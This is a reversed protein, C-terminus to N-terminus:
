PAARSGHDHGTELAIAWSQGRDIFSRRLQTRPRPPPYLAARSLTGGGRDAHAARRGPRRHHSRAQHRRRHARDRGSPQAALGARGPGPRAASPRSRRWGTLWMSTPRSRRPMARGVAPRGRGHRGASARAVGPQRGAHRPRASQVPVGIGQDACLPLMEREEERYMLNYHNQMSIFRIWGNREAVHQAKAFQWAYMSSAGLYRAKGATVVEHLAAMTEEIPTDYDWRHIQYLDVYNTGLRRLSADIAALVHKRSLGRDNAGPVM